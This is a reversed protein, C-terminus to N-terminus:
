KVVGKARLVTCANTVFYSSADASQLAEVIPSQLQAFCKNQAIERAGVANDYDPPLGLGATTALELDEDGCAADKGAELVTLFFPVAVYAHQKLRVTKAVALVVDPDTGQVGIFDRALALCEDGGYSQDFCTAIVVSGIKSRKAMFDKKGALQPYRQVLGEALMFDGWDSNEDKANYRALLGTAAKELLADWDAGRKGPPVDEIHQLLEEYQGKRQLAQLDAMSYRPAPSALVGLPSSAVFISGAGRTPATRSGARAVAADRCIADIDETKAPADASASGDARRTHDAHPDPSKVKPKSSGSCATHGITALGAAFFFTLKAKNM